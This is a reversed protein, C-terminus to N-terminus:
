MRPLCRASAAKAIYEIPGLEIEMEGTEAVAADTGDFPHYAQATDCWCALVAGTVLAAASKGARM